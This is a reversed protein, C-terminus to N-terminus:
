DLIVSISYNMLFKCMIQCVMDVEQRRGFNQFTALTLQERIGNFDTSNIYKARAQRIYKSSRSTQFEFLLGCNILQLKM